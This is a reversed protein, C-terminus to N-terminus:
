SVLARWKPQATEAHVEAALESTTRDLEVLVRRSCRFLTASMSSGRSSTSHAPAGGAGIGCSRSLLASRGAMAVADSEPIFQYRSYYVTITFGDEHDDIRYTTDKDHRQLIRNRIVFRAPKHVILLLNPSGDRIQFGEEASKLGPPQTMLHRAKPPALNPAQNAVDAM